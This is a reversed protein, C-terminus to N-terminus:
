FDDFSTLVIDDVFPDIAPKNLIADVDKALNKAGRDYFNKCLRYRTWHTWFLDSDAESCEKVCDPSLMMDEAMSFVNDLQKVYPQCPEMLCRNFLEEKDQHVPVISQCKTLMQLKDKDEVIEDVDWTIFIEHLGHISEKAGLNQLGGPSLKNLVLDTFIDFVKKDLEQIPELKDKLLSYYVPRCNEVHFRGIQNFVLPLHKLQKLNARLIGLPGMILRHGSICMHGGEDPNILPKMMILIKLMELLKKNSNSSNPTKTLEDYYQEILEINTAPDISNTKALLYKDVKIIPNSEFLGGSAITSASLILGIAVVILKNM